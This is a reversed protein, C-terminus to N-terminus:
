NGGMLLQCLPKIDPLTEIQGVYGLIQGIAKESIARSSCGVFKEKLEDTTLPAEPSGKAHEVQRSFNQGNKLRITVRCPRNPEVSDRLNPDLRMNVKEALRLVRQDRVASDTFADLFVKGDIMARALLYGMSFKGQLGTHPIRFVIRHYTHKTVDVDISEVMDPAIGHRARMELVADIASHTLGGCPYGKITIGKEILEYSQGLEDLSATNAPSSSFYADLFGNEAELAHSNATYGSQALKAALVGNRAALGSHLPKTMTGYNCVIGSAMSTSMGLAMQVKEFDLKLLKACALAAALTGLVGTSHWSGRAENPIPKVIKGTVEFGVVYAELLDRGRVGVSEGLAIIAPILGATPQGMYFSHDYDLAHAATGNAFAAQIASSKFGQAFVTAEGAGAEQRAIQACIKACEEQSGALTVGLCDLLATKAVEVAKPPIKEYELEVVFHAIKETANM